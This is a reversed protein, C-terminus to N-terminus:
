YVDGVFIYYAWILAVYEYSFIGGETKEISIDVPM